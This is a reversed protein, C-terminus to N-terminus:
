GNQRYLLLLRYAVLAMSWARSGDLPYGVGNAISQLLM